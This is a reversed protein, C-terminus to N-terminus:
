LELRSSGEHSIPCPYLGDSCLPHSGRNTMAPGFQTAVLNELISEAMPSDVNIVPLGAQEAMDRVYATFLRDRKYFASPRRECFGDRAAMQRLTRGFLKAQAHSGARGEIRRCPVPNTQILPPSWIAAEIRRPAARMVSAM